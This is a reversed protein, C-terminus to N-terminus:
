ISANIEDFTVYAFTSKPPVLFARRSAAIALAQKKSASTLLTRKSDPSSFVVKPARLEHPILAKVQVHDSIEPMAGFWKNNLASTANARLYPTLKMLSELFQVLHHCEAARPLLDKLSRPEHYHFNLKGWDPLEQAGPWNSESPTGLVEFTKGLQDLVTKGDFVPKGTALEAIVLGASYMDISPHSAQGGLLIEPPRYYLTCLGKSGGIDTKLPPLSESLSTVILASPCPKSLGFDCLLVRGESSLLFNGPKVDRHLIGRSHCHQLATVIDKSLAKVVAFSLPGNRAKKRLELLLQLDIPTYAFALSLAGPRMKQNSSPYIGLLPVICAHPSLLRLALVENFTEKSLKANQQCPDTSGFSGWQSQSPALTSIVTKIAALRWGRHTDIAISIEGFGGRALVPNGVHGDMEQIRPKGDCEFAKAFWDSSEQPRPRKQLMETEKSHEM